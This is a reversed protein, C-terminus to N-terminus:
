FLNHQTAGVPNLMPETETAYNANEYIIQYTRSHPPYRMLKDTFEAALRYMQLKSQKEICDGGGIDDTDSEAEM